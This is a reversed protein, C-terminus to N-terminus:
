SNGENIIEPFLYDLNMIKSHIRAESDDDFPLYGCIITYFIVGLSWIDALPGQYKEGSIM